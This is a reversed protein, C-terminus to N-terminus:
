LDLEYWINEKEYLNKNLDFRLFPYNCNSIVENNSNLSVIYVKGEVPEAIRKFNNESIVRVFTNKKYEESLNKYRDDIFKNLDTKELDFISIKGENLIININETDKGKICKLINVNLKTFPTQSIVYSEQIKNIKVIYIQSIEVENVYKENKVTEKYIITNPVYEQEAQVKRENYLEAKAIENGRNFELNIKDLKGKINLMNNSYLFIGTMLIIMTLIAVKSIIRNRKITKAKQIIHKIEDKNFKQVKMSKIQEYLIRDIDDKYNNM